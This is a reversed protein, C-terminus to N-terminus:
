LQERKVANLARSLNHRLIDDVLQPVEDLFSQQMQQLMVATQKQVATKVMGAVADALHPRLKEALRDLLVQESLCLMKRGAAEPPAYINLLVIKEAAAALAADGGNEPQVPLETQPVVAAEGQSDAQPRVAADLAQLKDLITQGESVQSPRRNNLWVTAQAATEDNRGVYLSNQANLWDEQFLIQLNDLDGDPQRRNHQQQWHELYAQYTQKQEDLSLKRRRGSEAINPKTAAPASKPPPPPAPEELTFFQRPAEAAPTNDASNLYRRKQQLRQLGKEWDEMDATDATSPAAPDDDNLTFVLPNQPKDRNM